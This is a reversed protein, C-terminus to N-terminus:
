KGESEQSDLAKFPNEYKGARISKIIGEKTREPNAAVLLGEFYDEIVKIDERRTQEQLHTLAEKLWEAQKDISLSHYHYEHRIDCLPQHHETASTNAAHRYKKEFEKLLEEVSRNNKNM